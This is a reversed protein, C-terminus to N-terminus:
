SQCPSLWKRRRALREASARGIGRRQGLEAFTLQITGNPIDPPDDQM